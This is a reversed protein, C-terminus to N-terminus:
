AINVPTLHATSVLKQVCVPITKNAASAAEELDKKAEKRDGAAVSGITTSICHLLLWNSRM